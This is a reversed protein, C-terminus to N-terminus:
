YIKGKEKLVERIESLNEEISINRLKTRKSQSVYVINDKELATVIQSIRSFVGAHNKQFEEWITKSNIPADSSNLNYIIALIELYLDPLDRLLQKLYDQALTQNVEKVLEMTIQKNRKKETEKAVNSLLVLGYRADQGEKISYGAILELVGEEIKNEYLAGEEIRSKLIAVIQEPTYRKFILNERTLSSRTNEKLRDRINADNSVLIYGVNGKGFTEIKAEKVENFAIDQGMRSITYLSGNIESDRLEHVEDLFILVYIGKESIAKIIKGYLDSSTSTITEEPSIQELIKKLVEYKTRSESGKIKIVKLKIKRKSAEKELEKLVYLVITTKGTGVGGFIIQQPLTPNERFLYSLHFSLEKIEEDRGVIMKPIYDISLLEKNKIIESTNNFLMSENFIM